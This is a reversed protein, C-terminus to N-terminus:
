NSLMEAFIYRIHMCSGLQSDENSSGQQGADEDSGLVSTFYKEPPIWTPIKPIVRVRATTEDNPETTTPTTSTITNSESRDNATSASTTVKSIVTVPEIVVNSLQNPDRDHDDNPGIQQVQRLRRSHFFYIAKRRSAASNLELNAPSSKEYNEVSDRKECFIYNALVFLVFILVTLRTTNRYMKISIIHLKNKVM